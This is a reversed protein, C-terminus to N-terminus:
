GHYGVLGSASRNSEAARVRGCAGTAGPSTASPRRLGGEGPTPTLDADDMFMFQAAHTEPGLAHYKDELSTQSAADTDSAASIDHRAVEPRWVGDPTRGVHHQVLGAARVGSLEETLEASRQTPAVAPPNQSSSTGSVSTGLPASPGQASAEEKVSTEQALDQLSLENEKAKDLPKAHLLALAARANKTGKHKMIFAFGRKMRISVDTRSTVNSDDTRATGITSAVESADDPCDWNPEEVVTFSSVTTVDLTDCWMSYEEACPYCVDQDFDRESFDNWIESFLGEVLHSWIEPDFFLYQMRDKAVKVLNEFRHGSLHEVLEICHLFARGLVNEALNGELAVPTHVTNCLM